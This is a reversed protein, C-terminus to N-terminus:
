FQPDRMPWTRPVRAPLSLLFAAGGYLGERVVLDGGQAAALRRAVFLGLGDGGTRGRHGREFVRERDAEPIGPGADEIRIVAHGGDAHATIWIPSGPAHQLANAVLNDVIEVVVAPQGYACVDDPVSSRLPADAAARLTIMPALVEAVPFLRATRSTSERSRHADLLDRVRTLEADLAGALQSERELSRLAAQVALLASKADHEDEERLAREARQLSAVTAAQVESDFLKAQQARYAAALERASGNLAFALGLLALISGGTLRLDGAGDVLIRLAESLALAFLMVGVWTTLWRRRVLGRHTYLTAAVCLLAVSLIRVPTPGGAGPAATHDVGLPDNSSTVVSCGASVGLVWAAAMLTVRRPTLRTDIEAAFFAVVLMAIAVVRAAPAMVLPFADRDLGSVVLASASIAFALALLLMGVGIRLSRTEGTLRWQMVVVSGVVVALLATMALLAVNLTRADLQEPLPGRGAILAFPLSVVVLLSCGLV